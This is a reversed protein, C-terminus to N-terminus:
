LFRGCKKAEFNGSQKWTWNRVPFSRTRGRGLVFPHNHNIVLSIILMSLKRGANPVVIHIYNMWGVLSRREMRAYTCNNVMAHIAKTAANSTAIIVFKCAWIMTSESPLCIQPLNEIITYKYPLSQMVICSTVVVSPCCDRLTYSYPEPTDYSGNLSYKKTKMKNMADDGKRSPTKQNM